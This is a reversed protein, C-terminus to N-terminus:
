INPLRDLHEFLAKVNISFGPLVSGGTLTHSEGLIEFSDSATHVTVTRKRPNVMWVLLTGAQFYERCKRRMEGKTNGPSIVEVALDPAILPAAEKPIKGKLRSWSLFSVDPIRIQNPFIRMLAQSGLVLGLNKPSVFNSLLTAICIALYDEQFGMAREVLVGDVLECLREQHVDIKTADEVTATGPFPNWRIRSADIDGLDHLVDALSRRKPKAIQKRPAIKNHYSKSATQIM